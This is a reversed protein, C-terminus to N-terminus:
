KKYRVSGEFILDGVGNKARNLSHTYYTIAVIRAVAAINQSIRMFMGCCPRGVIKLSEYQGCVNIRASHEM